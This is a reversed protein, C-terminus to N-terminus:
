YANEQNFFANKPRCLMKLSAPLCAPQCVVGRVGSNYDELYVAWAEDASLGAPEVSSVHLFRQLLYTECVNVRFPHLLNKAVVALVLGAREVWRLKARTSQPQDGISRVTIEQACHIVGNARQLCKRLESIKDDRSAFVTSLSRFFNKVM